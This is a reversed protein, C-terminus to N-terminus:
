FHFRVQISAVIAEAGDRLGTAVPTKVHADWSDKLERHMDTELPGASGSPELPYPESQVATHQPAPKPSKPPRGRLRPRPAIGETGVHVVLSCLAQEWAAVQNTAVICQAPMEIPKYQELQKWLPKEPQSLPAGLVRMHEGDTLRMRPHTHSPTHLDYHTCADEDPLPQDPDLLHLHSLQTSSLELEHCVLPLGAHANVLLCGTKVRPAM